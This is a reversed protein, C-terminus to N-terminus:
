IFVPLFENMITGVIILSWSFIWYRKYTVSKVSMTRIQFHIFSWDTTSTGGGSMVYPLVAMLISGSLIFLTPLLEIKFMGVGQIENTFVIM